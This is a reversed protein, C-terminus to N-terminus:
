LLIYYTQLYISFINPDHIVHSKYFCTAVRFPDSAQAKKIWIFYTKYLFFVVKFRAINVNKLGCLSAYYMKSYLLLLIWEYKRCM